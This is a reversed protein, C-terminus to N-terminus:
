SLNIQIEWRIEISAMNNKLISLGGKTAINKNLLGMNLNLDSITGNFDAELATAVYTVSKNPLDIIRESIPKVIATFDGIFRIGDISSGSTPNALLNLLIETADGTITNRERFVLIGDRFITVEGKLGLKLKEM